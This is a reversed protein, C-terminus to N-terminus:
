SEDGVAVEVAVDVYRVSVAGGLGPEGVIGRGIAPGGPRGVPRADGELGETVSLALDVHDIRVAGSQRLDAADVLSLGRGPGLGATPPSEVARVCVVPAGPFGGGLPSERAGALGPPASLSSPPGSRRRMGTSVAATM